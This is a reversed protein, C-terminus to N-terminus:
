YREWCVRTFQLCFHFILVHVKLRSFASSPYVTWRHNCGNGVYRSYWNCICFDFVHYSFLKKLLSQKWCSVLQLIICQLSFCFRLPGIGTLDYEPKLCACAYCFKQMWLLVFLLPTWLPLGSCHVLTNFCIRYLTASFHDWTCSWFWRTKNFGEVGAFERLSLSLSIFRRGWLLFCTCFFPKFFQHSAMCTCKFSLIYALSYLLLQLQGMCKCKLLWIRSWSDYSVLM